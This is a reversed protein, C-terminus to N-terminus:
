KKRGELWELTESGSEKGSSGGVRTTGALVTGQSKANDEEGPSSFRGEDIGYM